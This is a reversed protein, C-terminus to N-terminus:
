LLDDQAFFSKIIGFNDTPTFSIRSLASVNITDGKGALNVLPAVTDVFAQFYGFDDFTASIWEGKWTALKTKKM